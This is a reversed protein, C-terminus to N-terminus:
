FFFLLDSRGKSLVKQGRGPSGSFEKDRGLGQKATWTVALRERM